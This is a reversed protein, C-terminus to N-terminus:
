AYRSPLRCATRLSWWWLCHGLHVAVMSVRLQSGIKILLQDWRNGSTWFLCHSMSCTTSTFFHQPLDVLCHLQITCCANCLVWFLPIWANMETQVSSWCASENLWCVLFHISWCTLRPSSLMLISNESWCLGHSLKVRFKNKPDPHYNSQLM